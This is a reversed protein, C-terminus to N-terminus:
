VFKLVISKELAYNELIISKGYPTVVELEYWSKIPILFQTVTTTDFVCDIKTDGNGNCYKIM